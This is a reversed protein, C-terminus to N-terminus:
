PRTTGREERERERVRFGTESTQPGRRARVKASRAAAPPVVFGAADYGKPKEGRRVSPYAQTLFRAPQECGPEQARGPASPGRFELRARSLRAAASGLPASRRASSPFPAAWRPRRQPAACPSDQRSRAPPTAEAGRRRRRHSRRRHAVTRSERWRRMRAGSQRRGGKNTQPPQRPVNEVQAM